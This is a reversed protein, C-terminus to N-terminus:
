VGGVYGAALKRENSLISEVDDSNYITVSAIDGQFKGAGGRRSGIYMNAGTIITDAVHSVADGSKEFNV